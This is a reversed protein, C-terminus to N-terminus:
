RKREMIITYPPSRKIPNDHRDDAIELEPDGDEELLTINGHYEYEKLKFWVTVNLAFKSLGTSLHLSYTNNESVTENNIQITINGFLTNEIGQIFVKTEGSDEVHDILVTPITSLPSDPGEICGAAWVLFLVIGISSLERQM